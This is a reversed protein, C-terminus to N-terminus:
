GRPRSQPHRVPHRVGQRAGRGGERKRSDPRLRYDRMGAHKAYEFHKRMAEVTTENLTINGGSMVKLGAADFEKAGAEVEAPRFRRALHVDKISIYPVKLAKLM